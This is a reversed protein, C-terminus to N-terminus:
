LRAAKRAAGSGQGLDMSQLEGAEILAGLAPFKGALRERLKQAGRREIIAFAAACPESGDAREKDLAVMIEGMGWNPSDFKEDKDCLMFAAALAGDLGRRLGLGRHISFIGLMNKAQSGYHNSTAKAADRFGQAYAEMMTQGEPGVLWEDKISSRARGLTIELAKLHEGGYGRQRSSDLRAVSGMAHCAEVAVPWGRASLRSLDVRRGYSEAIESPHPHASGHSGSLMFVGATLGAANAANLDCGKEEILYRAAALRGGRFAAILPTDLTKPDRANKVDFKFASILKLLSSKPASEAAELLAAINQSQLTAMLESNASAGGRLATAIRAVMKDRTATDAVQQIRAMANLGHADALAPAAGWSLLAELTDPTCCYGLPLNGAPDIENLPFGAHVVLAKAALLQNTQVLYGLLPTRRELREEREARRRAAAEEASEDEDEAFHAHAAGVRAQALRAYTFNPHGALAAFVDQRGNEACLSLTSQGGADETLFDAGREIMLLGVASVEDMPAGENSQAVRRGYRSGGHALLHALPTPHGAAPGEAPDFPENLSWAQPLALLSRVLPANQISCAIALANDPRTWGPAPATSPARWAGAGASDPRAAPDSSPASAAGQAEARADFDLGLQKASHSNGNGSAM